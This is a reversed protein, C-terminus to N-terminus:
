LFTICIYPIILRKIKKTLFKVVDRKQHMSFLYGSISFFLPMSFLNIIYKSYDLFPIKYYTSFINWDNSYLIISHGFVVLIISIFRLNIINKKM